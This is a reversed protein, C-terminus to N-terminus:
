TGGSCVGSGFWDVLALTLLSHNQIEYHIAEDDIEFVDYGALLLNDHPTHCCRQPLAFMQRIVEEERSTFWSTIGNAVQVLSSHVMKLGYRSIAQM